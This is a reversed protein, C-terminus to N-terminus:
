GYYGCVVELILVCSGGGIINFIQFRTRCCLCVPMEDVLLLYCVCVLELLLLVCSCGNIVLVGILGMWRSKHGPAAQLSVRTVTGLFLLM